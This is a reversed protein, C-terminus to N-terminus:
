YEDDEMDGESESEGNGAGEEVQKGKGKSNVVAEDSKDEYLDGTEGEPFFDSDSEEAGGSKDEDMDDTDQSGLSEGSEENDELGGEDKATVIEYPEILVDLYKATFARDGLKEDPHRVPLLSQNADPLFAVQRENAVLRKQGAQLNNFWKPDYFDIPFNSPAKTFSSMIPVKPLRSVKSRLKKGSVEADRIREIDLRRIFKSANKGRYPLTKVAVENKGPIDEDDSHAAIEQAMKLYRPPINHRNKLLYEVCADRLQLCFVNDGCAM